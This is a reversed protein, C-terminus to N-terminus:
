QLGELHRSLNTRYGALGRKNTGIHVVYAKEEKRYPVGRWGFWHQTNNMEKCNYKSVALSLAFENHHMDDTTNPSIIEKNHYMSYYKLFDEKIKKHVGNKFMMFGDNYPISNLPLNFKSLNSEWTEQNWSPKVLGNYARCPEEIAFFDYDDDLLETIDRLVITDCDLFILNKTDIDCLEMKYKFSPLDLDNYFKSGQYITTHDSLSEIARSNSSPNIITIINEKDVFKSVSKISNMLQYRFSRDDKLCYVLKFDEM